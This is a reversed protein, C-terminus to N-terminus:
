LSEAVSGTGFDPALFSIDDNIAV